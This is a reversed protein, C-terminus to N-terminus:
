FFFFFFFFVYFLGCLTTPTITTIGVTTNLDLLSDGLGLFFLLSVHLSAPVSEAMVVM